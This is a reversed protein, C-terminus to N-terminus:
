NIYIKKNVLGKVTKIKIIYIGSKIRNSLLIESNENKLIKQHLVQQGLYNYVFVTANNKLKSVILKRKSNIYVQTQLANFNRINLTKRLDTFSTRLYFRGFGSNISKLFTHYNDNIKDLRTITKQVKDEIFVMLGTPLSTHNISFTVEKNTDLTVGLPITINEYNWNPLSQIALKQKNTKSALGSYLEFNSAKEAFISSDFGNDFDESCGDIYLLKTSKTEINSNALIIIKPTQKKKNKKFIDTTQHSQMAEKFDLKGDGFGNKLKVFFGQSPAIYSAASAHNVAEYSATSQNWFWITLEALEDQGRTSNVSLLNNIVDANSNAAIYAPYPNGYLGFDSTTDFTTLAYDKTPLLGTFNLSGKTTKKITFGNGSNWPGNYNYTWGDEYTGIAYELETNQTIIPSNAIINASTEGIVPSSVLYWNATPLHRTYNLNGTSTGHIILSSGNKLILGGDITLNGNVSLANITDITLTSGTNITINGAFATTNSSIIPSTTTNPISVLSASTPIGNTWNETLNWISSAAGTWTTSNTTFAEQSYPVFLEGDSNSTLWNSNTNILTYYASFSTESSKSGISYYGGDPSASNDAIIISTGIVLGTNTLTVADGDFPGLYSNDNGIQIAAIYTTPTNIDSGIFAIIGDKSASLNFSGYRSIAGVSVGFNPNRINDVDTFTIVTGAKITKTGTSWVITGEGTELTSPTDIGTTETDTFYITKNTIDALVVIAFDDDGDTNFGIFAIDGATQSFSLISYFFLLCVLISVRLSYKNKM